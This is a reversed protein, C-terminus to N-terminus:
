VKTCTFLLCYKVKDDLLPHKGQVKFSSKKPSRLGNSSSYVTKYNEEEVVAPYKSGAFVKTAKNTGKIKSIKAQALDVRQNIQQLRDHNEVVRSSIKDFIDNAVQDIYKLADCIQHITEEQRLDPPVIPVNYNQHAMSDKMQLVFNHSKNNRKEKEGHASQM